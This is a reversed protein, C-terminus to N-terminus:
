PAAPVYGVGYSGLPLWVGRGLAGASRTLDFGLCGSPQGQGVRRLAAADTADFLTMMSGTSHQVALLGDFEALVSAPSALVTRGSQAFKGAEALYFTELTNTATTAASDAPRGLFVNTGSVRVPHPWASPLPMSAVLRVEVGDYACATLFETWDDGKTTWRTGTTYVVEGAHSVGALRGPISVPRRTLPDRPDAYDIVNLFSKAAWSGTTETTTVGVGIDSGFPILPPLPQIYCSTQHSVYVLGDRAFADSFNWGGNTTLNLQSAFQPAAPDAIDFAVLRGGGSGYWPAWRWLMTAGLAVPQNWGWSWYDAGGGAWVLLDPKPFVAQAVGGGFSEVAASTAGSLSLAPLADLNVVSLHFNPAVAADGTADGTAALPVIVLGPAQGQAVYLRGGRAVAGLVPVNTLALTGLVVNPAGARAVRLVPASPQGYITWGGSSGLQLLYDGHLFVRDAGWALTAAGRVVPRDRDAADVSLLEWGSLSLIRSGYVTARRPQFAHEIVGRAALSAPNLDILQVRSAYGNSTSGSYPVLILGAEPLVSFAKEDWNAESWSYTEGLAVRSLLAPAAPKSVDFLSVAVRNTEVGVTVLQTGLPQIFTSWGPVEVSGSVRPAAPDSIDVVWLPDVQFFTVVYARAGDFRTAHLREGRGLELEGLKVPGGPAASRPDPLRFTELRTVLRRGGTGSWDESISTFVGGDWNLKFKDAAQGSLRLSAYAAMAGKPNTIDIAHVVSRWSNAPDQTVVFLLRDTATVVNGYGPYWLTDRAVPVDPSALDFSSVQTGWEWVSGASGAVLRYSQSAVYLATGVLRSETISGAVPLRARVVPAGGTDEAVIVQSQDSACGDRALLALHRAGLLYMDEGVAPLELTGRVVAADPDALDIAQLGRLQNFFYLTQGRLRWIDSEVVDRTEASTEAAGGVATTTVDRYKVADMPNSGTSQEAFSNTGTFFAAPATEVAEGRVRILEVARERPLRFTVRAGAGDVRSVGRPEWAGRGARERCELTVRRLGPPVRVSVLVNTREIQISTIEPPALQAASEGGALFLVALPLILGLTIGAPRDFCRTKM